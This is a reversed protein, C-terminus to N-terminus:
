NIFSYENYMFNIIITGPAVCDVRLAHVKCYLFAKGDAITKEICRM